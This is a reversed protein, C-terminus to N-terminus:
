EAGFHGDCIHEKGVGPGDIERHDKLVPSLSHVHLSQLLDDKTAPNLLKRGFAPYVHTDVSLDFCNPDYYYDM